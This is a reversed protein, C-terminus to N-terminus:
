ERVILQSMPEKWDRFGLDKHRMRSDRGHGTWDCFRDVPKDLSM